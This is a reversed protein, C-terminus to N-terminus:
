WVVIISPLVPMVLQQLVALVLIQEGAMAVWSTMPLELFFPTMMLALFVLVTCNTQLTPEKKEFTL